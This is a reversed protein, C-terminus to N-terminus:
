NGGWSRVYWNFVGDVPPFARYLWALPWYIPDAIGQFTRQQAPTLRAHVLAAPGVSLAYLALMGLFMVFWPPRKM